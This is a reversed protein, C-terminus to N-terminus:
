KQELYAKLTSHAARVEALKSLAIKADAGDQNVYMAESYKYFELHRLAGAIVAEARALQEDCDGGIHKEIYESTRAQAAEYGARYAENQEGAWAPHLPPYAEDAAKQAEDERTFRVPPKEKMGTYPAIEHPQAICRCMEFM